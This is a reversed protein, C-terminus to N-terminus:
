CGPMTAAIAAVPRIVDLLQRSAVLGEHYGSREHVAVAETARAAAPGPEGAARHARACATLARGELVAYGHRRAVDLAREAHALSEESAAHGLSDECAALGLLAEAQGYPHGVDVAVTLASRYAEGARGPDGLGRHADGIVVLANVEFASGSQAVISPLAGAAWDLAAAYEGRDCLLRGFVTHTHGAGYVTGSVDVEFLARNLLAAAEDPRGLCRVTDALNTFVIAASGREGDTPDALLVNDALRVAERLHRDAGRLDGLDYLLDGLNNTITATGQTWGAAVAADLATRYHELARRPDEVSHAGAISLHMAAQALREGGAVAADLAAQSAALWEVVHRRHYFYGRLADTILWAYERPGHAATHRVAAVLNARESELWSLAEPVEPVPAHVPGNPLRTSSPYLRRAAADATRLYWDYLRRAAAGREPDDAVREEAYRRLLDHLAYRGPGSEEVLHAATLQRLLRGPDRGALAHAAGVTLDPGPVLGLFRFLRAAEPELAAYSLDFAARVSAQPDDDVELEGLLDGARMRAVHAAIGPRDLLHAATIRLALPLRGCLAILEAAAAPEAAVRGAGLTTRLFEVAEAASLVPLELNVAGDRVVLGTLANRSTVLVMCHPSSPLLPRVQDPHHANDLLILVRRDALLSRYMGAAEEQHSPIREAPVGLARLLRALAEMPPVPASTSYGHLNLHLQGDPFRDRIRHAWHVALTTKGIGGTGTVTSIVVAGGRPLLADLRDLESERGTFDALDPPLQAPTRLPDGPPRDDRLVRLHAATLAPGPDLGTAEALRESAAEYVGLAGTRDGARHVATILLAAFTERLPYAAVLEALEPLVEGHRGAALEATLRLETATLYLDDLGAAVRERIRDTADAGLAPGRWLAFAERLPTLPEEATRAAAVLARFRHVDVQDPDAHLVYRGRETRLEASTGALAGRLRSVHVRVASRTLGDGLLDILDETSVPTNLRLLLVGLIRRERRRGLAVPEGDVVALVGGLVRFEM